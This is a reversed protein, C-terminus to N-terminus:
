QIQFSNNNGTEELLSKPQPCSQFDHGIFFNNFSILISSARKGPPHVSYMWTVSINQFLGKLPQMM